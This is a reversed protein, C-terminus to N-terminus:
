GGRGRQAGEGNAKSGEKDKFLYKPNYKDWPKPKDHRCEPPIWNPDRTPLEKLPAASRQPERRRPKQEARGKQEASPKQEARREAREIYWRMYYMSMGSVTCRDWAQRILECLREEGYEALWRAMEEAETEILERGRHSRWEELVRSLGTLKAGRERADERKREKEKSYQTVIVSQEANGTMVGEKQEAKQEAKQNVLRYVTGSRPSGAVTEYKLLGQSVLRERESRWRRQSLGLEDSLERDSKRFIEGNLKLKEYIRM